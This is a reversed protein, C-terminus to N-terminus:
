ACRHMVPERGRKLTFEGLVENTKVMTVKFKMVKGIIQGEYRVSDPKRPDNQRIPGINPGKHFGDVKFHGKKDIKLQHPIEGEACDYEIKVAGKEVSVSIGMGGFSAPAVTYLKTQNMKTVSNSPIPKADELPTIASISSLDTLSSRSSCSFATMTASVGTFVILLGIVLLFKSPAAVHTM